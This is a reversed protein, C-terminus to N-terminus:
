EPPRKKFTLWVSPRTGRETGDQRDILTLVEELHPIDDETFGTGSGDPSKFFGYMLLTGEPALLHRMNERYAKKGEPALSHFCGIDLVLDFPAKSSQFHTVDAVHLDIALGARKAKQKALRIARNAFDVGTVQWGSRALTICNTGSGCGLDLAKGPSHQNIFALLEPPSIGTDWPPRRFYWINFIFKRFLSM